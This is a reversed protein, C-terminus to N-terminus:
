ANEAATFYMGDFTDSIFANYEVSAHRTLLWSAGDQSLRLTSNEVLALASEFNFSLYDSAVVRKGIRKAAYTFASSGSM